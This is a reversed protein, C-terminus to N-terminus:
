SGLAEEVLEVDGFDEILRERVRAPEDVQRYFHATARIMALQEQRQTLQERKREQLEEALRPVVANLWAAPNKVRALGNDLAEIAWRVTETSYKSLATSLAKQDRKGKGYREGILQFFSVPDDEDLSKNEFEQRKILPRDHGEQPSTQTGRSTVNKDGLPYVRYENTQGLGRRIATVYGAEELEKMWRKVSRETSAFDRAMQAHGPYEGSCWAYWLLQGFALRAGSSLREDTLLGRPVQVFGESLLQDAVIIRGRADTVPGEGEGM